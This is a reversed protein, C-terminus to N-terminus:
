KSDLLKNQLTNQTVTPTRVETENLEELMNACHGATNGFLGHIILGAQTRESKIELFGAM